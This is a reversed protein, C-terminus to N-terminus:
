LGAIIQLMGSVLLYIGIIIVLSRPWILVIAGLIVALIGSIVLSIFAVM